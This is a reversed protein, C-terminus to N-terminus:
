LQRSVLFDMAFQRFKESDMFGELWEAFDALERDNRSYQLDAALEQSEWNSWERINHGHHPRQLFAHFLYTNARFTQKAKQEALTTKKTKFLTLTWEFLFIPYGMDDPFNKAFWNFYRKAGSYDGLQIYLAPPLYRLGRSDDYFGGWKRKDAALEKKIKTIKAQIREAQKPTM